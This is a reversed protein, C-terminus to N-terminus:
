LHKSVSEMIENVWRIAQIYDETVITPTLAFKELSKWDINSWDGYEHCKVLKLITGEPNDAGLLADKLSPQIALSDVIENKHMDLFADLTSLLGVTFFGDVRIKDLKSNQAIRAGLLECTRARTLAMISLEQPKGGLNTLALLNIWTRLRNIGLLLIAQRLSDVERELSIAASNILKLLKYSLIADSAILLEIKDVPANPDHLVSLLQLLAQRNESLKKGHVVEPRSLFYGQFYHFGLAKCHEFMEYSEIKEALLEIGYQSLEDVHHKLEDNSLALVDLKIIDAYAILCETEKNLVFDDLAIIYGQQRLVKLSHLMSSDIKQGELVEIVLQQQPFALPEKLLRKSFNIFAYNRGVVEQMPLETFANLLVESTAADQGSASSLDFTPNRNLLEYGIVELKQNFIPQRALLPVCSM